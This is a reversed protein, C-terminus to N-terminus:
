VSVRLRKQSMLPMLHNNLCPFESFLAQDQFELDWCCSSNLFSYVKQSVPSLIFILSIKQKTKQFFPQVFTTTASQTCAANM